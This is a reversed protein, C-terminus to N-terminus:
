SLPMNDAFSINDQFIAELFRGWIGVKNRKLAILIKAYKWKRCMWVRGTREGSEEGVQGMKWKVRGEWEAFLHVLHKAIASLVRYFRLFAIEIILM